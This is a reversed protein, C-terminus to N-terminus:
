VIFDNGRDFELPYSIRVTTGVNEESFIQLRYKDGHLLTIRKNVNYLGYGMKGGESEALYNNLNNVLEESMGLGNDIIDFYLTNDKIYVNIIIKGKTERNKIGHYIANEVIPQLILKQVHLENSEPICNIEYELIDSYRIGQIFLYNKIHEIEESLTIIESGRSLGIRYLKTLASILQEIDNADYKKSMWHITDFTNYLFHPKIQEQLSALDSDRKQKQQRVITDVLRQIENNKSLAYM